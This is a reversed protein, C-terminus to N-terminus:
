KTNSAPQGLAMALWVAPKSGFTPSRDIARFWGLYGDL